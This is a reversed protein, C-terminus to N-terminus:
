PVIQSINQIIIERTANSLSIGLFVFFFFHPPLPEVKKKLFFAPFFNLLLAFCFLIPTLSTIQGIFFFLVSNDYSEGVFDKSLLIVISILSMMFSAKYAFGLRQIYDTPNLEYQKLDLSLKNRARRFAPLFTSRLRRLFVLSGLFILTYILLFIELM